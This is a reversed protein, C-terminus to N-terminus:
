KESSCFDRLRKIAIIQAVTIGFLPSVIAIALGLSLNKVEIVLLHAGLRLLINVALGALTAIFWIKLKKFAGEKKSWICTLAPLTLIIISAFWKRLWIQTELKPDTEFTGYAIALLVLFFIIFIGLIAAVSYLVKAFFKKM